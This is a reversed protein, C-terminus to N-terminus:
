RAPGHECCDLQHALICAAALLHGLAARCYVAHNVEAAVGAAPPAASLFVGPAAQPTPNKLIELVAALIRMAIAGYQGLKQLLNRLDDPTLGAAQARALVDPPLDALKVAQGRGPTAQSPNTPTPNSM